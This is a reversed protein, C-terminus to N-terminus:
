NFAKGLLCEFGPYIYSKIFGYTVLARPYVFYDNGFRYRYGSDIGAYPNKSNDNKHYTFGTFLSSNIDHDSNNLYHYRGGIRFVYDPHNMKKFTEGWLIGENFVFVSVTSSLHYEIELNPIGMALKFVNISLSIKEPSNLEQSIANISIGTFVCIIIAKLYITKM